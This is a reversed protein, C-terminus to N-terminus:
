ERPPCSSPDLSCLLCSTPYGMRRALRDLMEPAPYRLGSEWQSWTSPAIGLDAAIAKPPTGTLRRWNRLKASFSARCSSVARQMGDKTGRCRLKANRKEPVCDRPSDCEDLWARLARNLLRNFSLGRQKACRGARAHLAEAMNIQLKM